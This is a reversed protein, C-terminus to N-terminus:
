VPRRQPTETEGALFIQRCMHRQLKGSPTKPLGGTKVFRVAHVRVEHEEAVAQRIARVVENGDVGRDHYREVEVMVVLQQSDKGDVAFAVCCGPRIAPHSQESTLEIDQPYYNRGAIIILDKLRGTIFLEGDRVFGLDGTRLFPGEGT